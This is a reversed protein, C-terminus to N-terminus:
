RHWSHAPPRRGRRLPAGVNGATTWRPSGGADAAPCRVFCGGGAAGAAPHCSTQARAATCCAEGSGARCAAAGRARCARSDSYDTIGCNAAAAACIARGAKCFTACVEGSCARGKGDRSGCGRADSCRIAGAQTPAGIRLDRSANRRLLRFRRCCDREPRPGPAHVFASPLAAFWAPLRRRVAGCAHDLDRRPRHDHRM